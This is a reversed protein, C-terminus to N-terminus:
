YNTFIKFVQILSSFKTNNLLCHLYLKKKHIIPIPISSINIKIDPIASDCDRESIETSSLIFLMNLFLAIEMVIVETVLMKANQTPAVDTKM